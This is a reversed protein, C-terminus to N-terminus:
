ACVREGSEVPLGAAQWAAMGGSVNVVNGVGAAALARTAALSRRGSRCILYLTGHAAAFTRMAELNEHAMPVAHAVRSYATDGADRLDLMLDGEDITALAARPPMSRWLTDAADVLGGIRNAPVVAAIRRPPALDLLGMAAIFQERTRGSVRPNSGREVAISSETRGHYDHGPLVRTAGPLRFLTETISDFLTGADGNQFDTRGCGGILLTDGTFVRDRWLYSMGGATHGPTALVQIREAGFDIVDRDELNRDYGCAECARGVAITAGTAAKLANAGTVHDAHVHTDLVWTLKLGQERLIALDRESQGLVPDIIVAERTTPDSLMYTYTSSEPDFLQQLDM